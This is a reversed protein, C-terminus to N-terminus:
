RVLGKTVLNVIYDLLALLLSFGVVFGITVLSSNLALERTPWTVKKLEQYSERVFVRNTILLIVAVVLTVFAFIWNFLVAM